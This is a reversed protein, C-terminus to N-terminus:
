GKPAYYGKRTRIQANPQTKVRLAIQHFRGDRPDNTAYYNLVYQQALDAAIQTFATDLDRTTHPVYVAGGTQAAFDELRREAALDRLNPSESVGTQVAYIQCNNMMARKLADDFSLDSLTDAGDSVIVIVRREAGKQQRFLDVAQGIADFLATAGEPKGFHEITQVLTKVDSTFNTELKPQTSVSFIAARDVPRMVRKFFRIAAQREFDRASSLSSSNDFLLILHVPTEAFSLETIQRAEGDVRFEFDEAKLGAVARGQADVVSVPVPVLNSTVRVVDDQEAESNNVTQKADSAKKTKQNGTQNPDANPSVAPTQHQPTPRPATKSTDQKQRGSQARLPMLASSSVVFCLAGFLACLAVRVPRRTLRARAGTNPQNHQALREM